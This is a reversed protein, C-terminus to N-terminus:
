VYEPRPAKEAIRSRSYAGCAQCQWRQYSAVKSVQVGKNHLPGSGCTPCNSLNAGYMNLPVNNASWARLVLYLERLPPIDQKNYLKLRKWAKMDGALCGDWTTIGGPDGKRSIDLSNALDGLKNSSFGGIRKALLKTDVERYPSPPLMGHALMRARSKKQDFKNGNHAIVVDAEDFLKWITHVVSHDNNVGPEYDGFDCQAVCHITKEGEWQWAVSLIQFDHIVGIVGEDWIDWKKTILYSTELDYFLIRPQTM